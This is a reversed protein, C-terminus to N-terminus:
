YVCKIQKCTYIGYADTDTSIPATCYPNESDDDTLQTVWDAVTDTAQTKAGSGWGNTGDTCQQDDCVWYKDIVTMDWFRDDSTNIQIQCIGSDEM